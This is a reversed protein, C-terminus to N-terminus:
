SDKECTQTNTEALTMINKLLWLTIGVGFDEADNATPAAHLAPEQPDLATCVPQIVASQDQVERCMQFHLSVLVYQHRKDSFPPLCFLATEGLGGLVQHHQLVATQRCVIPEIHLDPRAAFSAFPMAQKDIIFRRAFPMAQKDIIFSRAFPIAQKDIIFRRAFPMAQKDIIFIRAFPMAQKDIIFIRTFPMAQKDIIFSRAFPM